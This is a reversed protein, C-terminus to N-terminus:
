FETIKNGRSYVLIDAKFVRIFAEQALMISNQYPNSIDDNFFQVSVPNCCIAPRGKYEQIENVLPNNILGDSLHKMTIQTNINQSNPVLAKGNSDIVLIKVQVNGLEHNLVLTNALGKAITDNLSTVTVQYNDANLQSVMVSGSQGITQSIIRQLQYWPPSLHVSKKEDIKVKDNM